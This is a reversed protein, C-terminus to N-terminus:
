ISERELVKEKKDRKHKIAKKGKRTQAKKRHNFLLFIYKKHM